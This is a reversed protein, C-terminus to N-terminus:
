RYRPESMGVGQGIVSSILGWGMVPSASLGTCQDTEGSGPYNFFGNFLVQRFTKLATFKKQFM